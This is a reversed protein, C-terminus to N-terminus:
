FYITFWSSFNNLANLYTPIQSIPLWTSLFSSVYNYYDM